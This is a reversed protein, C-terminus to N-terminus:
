NRQEERITIPILTAPIIPILTSVHIVIHDPNDRRAYLKGYHKISIGNGSSFNTVYMILKHDIKASLEWGM